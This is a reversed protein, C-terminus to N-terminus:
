PRGYFIPQTIGAHGPSALVSPTDETAEKFETAPKGERIEAVIDVFAADLIETPRELVYGLVLQGDNLRYRFRAWVWYTPGGVYPKLVLRLKEPIDVDGKQGAKGAVTEKYVLKTEGNDIKQSTEFDVSRKAQFHQALELMHAPTPVSIDSARLEVFDAFDLQTLLQGDFKEWALWAKTKELGLKLRHKEWGAEGDVGAHADLIAIVTSNPTDAWVETDASGHKHVYACFAEADTVIRSAAKHRPHEAYSDTDTITVGGKDNVLALVKGPEVATPAVTAKALEAVTQAENLESM